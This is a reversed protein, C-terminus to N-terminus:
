MLDRFLEEIEAISPRYFNHNLSYDENTKAALLEIDEKKVGLSSLKIKTGVEESLEKIKDIIFDAKEEPSMTNTEIPFIFEAIEAYRNLATINKCNIKSAIPLVIANCLGHPLNYLASLQHSMSHALGCGANGFSLGAIYQAVSMGERSKEDPCNVARPLYEFIMKIATLALGRTILFGDKSVYSEVAHTLADMGPGATLSKPLTMTLSHDDVSISPIAKINGLGFKKQTKEDVVVFDSTCESGTGSTTNVAVLFLPENIIKDNEYEEINIGNTSLLSIAKATDIASGGGVAVVADIREKRAIKLGENIVTYTPNPCVKDFIFTTINEHMIPEIVKEVIKLKILSEDTVILTKKIDNEKLKKGLDAVCDYGFMTCKPAYYINTM